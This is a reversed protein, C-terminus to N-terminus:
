TSWTQEIVRVRCGRSRSRCRSSSGPELLESFDSLESNKSPRRRVSGSNTSLDSDSDLDAGAGKALREVPVEGTTTDGCRTTSM